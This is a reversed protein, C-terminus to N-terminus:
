IERLHNKSQDQIKHMLEILCGQFATMVMCAAALMMQYILLNLMSVIKVYVDRVSPACSHYKTMLQIGINIKLDSNSKNDDPQKSNSSM